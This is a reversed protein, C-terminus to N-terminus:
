YKPFLDPIPRFYNIKISKPKTYMDIDQQVFFIEAGVLVLCTHLSNQKEQMTSKTLESLLVFILHNLLHGLLM